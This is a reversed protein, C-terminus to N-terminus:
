RGSPESQRALLRLASERHDPRDSLQELATKLHEKARRLRSYVTNEPIGLVRAVEPATLEEWYTLELAIQQDIPVRVLAQQLLREEDRQMLAGTASPRLDLVSTTTFDFGSLRGNKRYHLYLQMRALGFLYARFSSEGRFNDKAEVCAVFTQQILDEAPGRTKSSFFRHLANFHRKLLQSGARMDGARWQELLELDDLVQSM